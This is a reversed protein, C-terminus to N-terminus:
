VLLTMKFRDLTLTKAIGGSELNKVDFIPYLVDTNSPLHSTSQFSSITGDIIFSASTPTIFIKLDHPKTEDLGISLKTSAGFDDDTRGYIHSTDSGQTFMVDSSETLPTCGLWWQMKAPDSSNISVGFYEMLIQRYNFMNFPMHMFMTLENNQTSTTGLVARGHYSQVGNLTCSAASGNHFQYEPPLFDYRFDHEYVISQPIFGLDKM